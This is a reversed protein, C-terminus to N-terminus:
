PLQLSPSAGAGQLQMVSNTPRKHVKSRLTYSVRAERANTKHSHWTRHTLSGQVAVWAAIRTAHTTNPRIVISLIWSIVISLIWTVEIRSTAVHISCFATEADYLRTNRCPDPTQSSIDREQSQVVASKIAM